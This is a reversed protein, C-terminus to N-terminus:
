KDRKVYKGEVTKLVALVSGLVGSIGEIPKIVKETVTDVVYEGKKVMRGVGNISETLTKQNEVLGDTIKGMNQVTKRLDKVNDTTASLLKMIYISVGILSGSVALALILKWLDNIEM